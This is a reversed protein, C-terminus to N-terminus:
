AVNALRGHMIRALHENIVAAIAENDLLYNEYMMRRLVFIRGAGQRTLDEIERDSRGERDFIFAISPPILANARSLREYIEFAMRARTRKGEFDGTHLVPVVVVGPPLALGAATVLLPFCREETQGEVWVIQDAGFLDSLRVGVEALAKKIESVGASNLSELRSRDVDWKVLYLTDPKTASIIEPAHTSIIYQHNYRQLIDLLKRSAAPHLFSNPEDIVITKPSSSELVVYLIALVQGVGTGSDILKIKLDDRGTDPRVNWLYIEALNAGVPEVSVSLVSPFVSNVLNVFTNFRWHSAQLLLLCSALNAANPQLQRGPDIPSTGVNLREARFVYLSNNVAAGLIGCAQDQGGQMPGKIEYTQRDASVLFNFRNTQERSPFECEPQSGGMQWTLNQTGKLKVLVSNSQFLNDLEEKAKTSSYDALDISLMFSSQMMFERYVEEGTFSVVIDVSSYPNPVTTQREISRHPKNTFRLKDLCEFLATKGSNNQGTIINFREGFSILGSDDFGKYNFIRM